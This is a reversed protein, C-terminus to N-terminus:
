YRGTTFYLVQGQTTQPSVTHIELVRDWNLAICILVPMLFAAAGLAVHKSTLM